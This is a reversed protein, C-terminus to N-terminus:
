AIDRSTDIYIRDSVKFRIYEIVPPISRIKPLSLKNSIKDGKKEVDVDFIVDCVNQFIIEIRRDHVGKLIFLICTSERDKDM